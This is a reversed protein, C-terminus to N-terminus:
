SQRSNAATRAVAGGEGKGDLGPLRQRGSLEHLFINCDYNRHSVAGCSADAKEMASVLSSFRVVCRAGALTQSRRPQFPDRSRTAVVRISTPTPPPASA